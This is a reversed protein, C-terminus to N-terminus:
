FSTKVQIGETWAASTQALLGQHRHSHQAIPPGTGRLCTLKSHLLTQMALAERM